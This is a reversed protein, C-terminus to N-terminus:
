SKKFIINKEGRIAARQVLPYLILFLFNGAQQIIEILQKGGSM